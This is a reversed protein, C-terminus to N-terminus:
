LVHYEYRDNIQVPTTVPPTKESPTFYNIGGTEGKAYSTINSKSSNDVVAFWEM